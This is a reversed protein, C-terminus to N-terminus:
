NLVPLEIKVPRLSKANCFLKWGADSRDLEGDVISAKSKVIKGRKDKETFQFCLVSGDVNSQVSELKMSQGDDIRSRLLLAAALARRQLREDHREQAIEEYPKEVEDMRLYFSTGFGAVILLMVALLILRIKKGKKPGLSDCRPCKPINEDIDDGCVKCKVIEM